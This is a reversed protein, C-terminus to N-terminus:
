YLCLECRKPSDRAPRITSKASLRVSVEVPRGKQLCVGFRPKPGRLNGSSLQGIGYVDVLAPFPPYSNTQSYYYMGLIYQLEAKMSPDPFLNIARARALVVPYLMNAEIQQEIGGVWCKMGLNGSM